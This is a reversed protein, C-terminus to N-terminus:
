NDVTACAARGGSVKGTRVREAKTTALIINYPVIFMEARTQTIATNFRIMLFLKIVILHFLSLVSPFYVVTSYGACM